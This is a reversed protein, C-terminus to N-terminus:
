KRDDGAFVTVASDLGSSGSGAPQVTGIHGDGVLHGVPLNRLKRCAATISGYSVDAATAIRDIAMNGDALHVAAAVLCRPNRGGMEGGEAAAELIATARLTATRGMKLASAMRALIRVHDAPPVDVDMERCLVNYTSTVLKKGVAAHGAIEKISHATCARRCALYVAAAAVALRNRGKMSLSRGALRGIRIADDIIASPLGLREALGRILNERYAISPSCSAILRATVETVRMATRKGAHDPARFNVFSGLPMASKKCSPNNEPHSEHWYQETGMVMGCRSCAEEGDHDM